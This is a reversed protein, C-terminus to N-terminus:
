PSRCATCPVWRRAPCCPRKARGATNLADEAITVIANVQGDVAAIRDLHARVIEVPSVAGTRILEALRTADSHILDENM